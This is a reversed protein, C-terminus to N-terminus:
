MIDLVLRGSSLKAWVKKLISSIYLQTLSMSVSFAGNSWLTFVMGQVLRLWKGNRYSLLLLKQKLKLDDVALNVEYPWFIQGM